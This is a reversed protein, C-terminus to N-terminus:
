ISCFKNYVYRCYNMELVCSSLHLLISNKTSGLDTICEVNFARVKAGRIEVLEYDFCVFAIPKNINSLHLSIFRNSNYKNISYEHFVVVVFLTIKM